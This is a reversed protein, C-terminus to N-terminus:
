IRQKPVMHWEDALRQMYEGVKPQMPLAEESSRVNKKQKNTPKGNADYEDSWCEKEKETCHVPCSSVQSSKCEFHGGARGWGKEFCSTNMTNSGTCKCESASQSAPMGKKPTVCSMTPQGKPMGKKDFDYSHCEMQTKGCKVPCATFYAAPKCEYFQSMGYEGGELCATKLANTGGCKCDSAKTVCSTNPGHMMAPMGTM